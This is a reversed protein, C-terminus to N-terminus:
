FVWSKQSIFHETTVSNFSLFLMNELMNWNYILVYFMFNCLSISTCAVIHLYQPATTRYSISICSKRKGKVLWKWLSSRCYLLTSPVILRLSQTQLLLLPGILHTQTHTNIHTHLCQPPRVSKDETPLHLCAYNLRSATEHQKEEQRM